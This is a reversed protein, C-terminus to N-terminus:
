VEWTLILTGVKNGNIDRLSVENDTFGFEEIAKDFAAHLVERVDRRSSFRENGLEAKVEIKLTCPRAM